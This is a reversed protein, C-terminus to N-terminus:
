EALVSAGPWQGSTIQRHVEREILQQLQMSAVSTPKDAPTALVLKRVLQPSVIPCATMEGRKVSRLVTALPLVTHALGRRVLDLQLSLTNVETDLKLPLKEQAAAKELMIRLVHNNGPLVMPCKLATALKVKPAKAVKSNAPGILYLQEKMLPTCRLNRRQYPEYTIALNIQKQETLEQLTGSMAQEVTLSVKPFTQRFQQVIDGALSHAVSPILGFIVQGTVEGSVASVAEATAEVEQLLKSAREQLVEGAATLVVGRGHRVFLKAGLYEEMLRIQRSLAPQAICLRESARSFSGCTSVTIFSNLQRLDFPKSM